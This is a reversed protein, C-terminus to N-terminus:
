AKTPLTLHTYSVPENFIRSFTREQKDNMLNVDDGRYDTLRWSFSLATDDGDPDSSEDATFRIEDGTRPLLAENSIIDFYSWGEKEAIYVGIKAVAIPKENAPREVTILVEDSWPSALGEEEALAEPVERAMVKASYTKIEELGPLTYNYGM